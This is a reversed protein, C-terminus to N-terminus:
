EVEFNFLEKEINKQKFIPSDMFDYSELLLAEVKQRLARPIREPREQPMREPSTKHSAPRAYKHKTVKTVTATAMAPRVKEDVTDIGPGTGQCGLVGCSYEVTDAGM